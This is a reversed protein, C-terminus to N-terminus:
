EHRLARMPDMSASRWAPLFAAATGVALLVLGTWVFAGPDAAKVGFLLASVAHAAAVSAPLGLVVGAGVLVLADRLVLWLVRNRRAGLAIRIGFEGSRRATSYAMVGYLGIAALALALAGFFASLVALLRDQFVSEDIAQRITRPEQALAIQPDLKALEARIAPLMATKPLTSRVLITPEWDIPYQAAPVFVAPGTPERLGLHPIDRVVGVIFTREGGEPKSDDFSLARELPHAEGPLFERVFAENVVAVKRSDKTDNRDIDRGILPRSGLVEFFRSAVSHIDVDAAERATKLSGPVRITGSSSQMQFPAPFGYSVCVVGALSEMREVFRRRASEVEPKKWARPFDLNVAIVNQNGFGLDISRLAALSQGFLTAVVVLVMSLAVQISVLARRLVPNRTTNRGPGSELGAALSVATSRLAPTLGFFLAALLSIGATFALVMGDPAANWGDAPGAPLFHLVFTEAWEAFAIGLLCGAAALILSETLAQRVMRGRTAGLAFRLAIERERAAGRALLLNALNACAALLVLGVAAMLITLPRGFYERLASVGADGERVELRQGMAVKRFGGQPMRGYIRTLYQQMHIDLAAQIRSRPIEPRRRAVIMLWHMGPQKINGPFMMEPVWVDSQTETQVGHFGPAAVGIVTLPQEDVVLRRGLVHPDAGFRNRWFDYSLVALPHGGPVRDDDDTFVRGMAAGVGLVGFYNGSVYERRAFEARGGSAASFRVKAATNTAIAGQFLDGRNRLEQYLPYAVVGKGWGGTRYLTVLEEPHSVPLMRLMLARVLSFIATNAGIGLALSLVAAAAFGPSRRLGRLAYRIDKALIELWPIGREDRYAEAAQAVGGFERRAAAKAEAATMGRARFQDELMQLHFGVERDLERDLRRRRVLERMRQWM